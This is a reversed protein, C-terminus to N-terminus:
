AGTGSLQVEEWAWAGSSDVSTARRISGASMQVASLTGDTSTPNGDAGLPVNATIIGGEATMCVYSGGSTYLANMGAMMSEPTIGNLATSVVRISDYQRALVDPLVSVVNGFTVSSTTGASLDREMAGVRAFVRLAPTFDNDRVQVTDGLRVGELEAFPIRSTYSVQPTMRAELWAKGASLLESADSISSDEFRGWTHMTGGRGDPLGWLLRAEENQAYATVGDAGYCRVATYVADDLVQKDIGEMNHAYEFRAGKDEGMKAVMSVKRNVVGGVDCEVSPYVEAGYLGAMEMLVEYASKKEWTASKVGEVDVTGVSWLTGQLLSSLSQSCTGSASFTELQKADLDGMMTTECHYSASESSDHSQDIGVVAHEMWGRGDNWLIRDGKALVEDLSFDLSDEGNIEQRHVVGYPQLDELQQGWRSYLLYKPALGDRENGSLVDSFAKIFTRKAACQYGADNVAVIYLDHWGPTLADWVSALDITATGATADHESVLQGDINITLTADTAIDIAFSTTGVIRGMDMTDPTIVPAQGTPKLVWRYPCQYIEAEYAVGPIGCGWSTRVYGDSGIRRAWVMDHMYASQAGEDYGSTTLAGDIGWAEETADGSDAIYRQWDSQETPTTGDGCDLVECSYQAGRFEFTSQAPVLPGSAWAHGTVSGVATDMVWAGDSMLNWGLSCKREMGSGSDTKPVWWDPVITEDADFEIHDYYEWRYWTSGPFYSPHMVLSHLPAYEETDYNPSANTHTLVYPRFFHGHENPRYSDSRRVFTATGQYVHKQQIFM